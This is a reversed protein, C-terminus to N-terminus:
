GAEYWIGYEERLKDLAMLHAKVYDSYTKEKKMAISEQYKKIENDILEKSVYRNSCGYTYVSGDSCALVGFSYRRKFATEFDSGTPPTKDPHTHLGILDGQNNIVANLISSNPKVGFPESSTANRGLLKGSSKSIIFLDECNTGDRHTLGAKAYRYLSEEVNGNGVIGSFLRRYKPSYIIERNISYSEDKKVRKNTIGSDRGLLEVLEKQTPSFRGSLGDQRIRGYQMPLGMHDSFAKYGQMQGQYKARKLILEEKSAGGTELLKVQQRTARISREQRRQEQLAEYTTYQKGGYEKPTNEEEIMADLEEDTYTRTSAGKVFPAYDHYCNAGCLGAVDGLGCESVLQDYTWVRGEWPQHSPRAGVHYSVEYTDTGLQAATQENIHSQVQRWGTMVARRVAVDVRNHVGSDYDIWRLGSNTLQTVTRRLVTDYSTAGSAIETIADDLTGRYYQMLPSYTIRGDEGRIALGMSGSLTGFQNHLQTRLSETLQQLPVNQEYPIMDLGAAKYLPAQGYYEKYVEDSFIHELEDDTADLAFQVWKKISEESMGLQELRTIEWDATASAFGNIRIREVIDNLIRIELQSYLSEVETTLAELEGQTM